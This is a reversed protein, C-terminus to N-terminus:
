KSFEREVKIISEVADMAEKEGYNENLYLNFSRDRIFRAHPTDFQDALYPQVWPWERVLYHYHASLGIGEKEVALAFEVKSCRIREVDVIVPLFFPSDAPSWPYAQCVASEEILRASFEAVFALRRIVTDKLRSVSAIGIACSVEDTHLNLAPFLFTNPNRDDFDERWRPKGRDSHALASRFLDLNRSYVVGGAAGAIHAKRYMTSFAAIDGFTGVPRGMIQAGHAQSCDEVVKIGHEKAKVAIKDIECAQGASHVIVLAKTSPTVREAFQKLGINYSNRSSDVLKPVLGNLIIASLTGPDTIPSVLVESGRPLALAAIAVYLAATGTAVADAYGGGMMAVFADTYHKEFVGQYGPDLKRDRYYALCEQMMKIEADGLAVRAPMPEERM